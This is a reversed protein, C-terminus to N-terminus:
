TPRTFTPGSGSYLGTAAAEAPAAAYTADNGSYQAVAAVYTGSSGPAAPDTGSQLALTFGLPLLAM